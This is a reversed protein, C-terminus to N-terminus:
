QAVPAPATITMITVDEPRQKYQVTTTNHETRVRIRPNAHQLTFWASVANADVLGTADLLLLRLSASYADIEATGTRHITINLAM